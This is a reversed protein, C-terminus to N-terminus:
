WGDLATVSGFINLLSLTVAKIKPNKKKIWFILKSRPNVLSNMNKKKNHNNNYVPPIFFNCLQKLSIKLELSILLKM